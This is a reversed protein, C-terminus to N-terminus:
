WGKPLFMDMLTMGAEQKDRKVRPVTDTWAPAPSYTKGANAVIAVSESEIIMTERRTPRQDNVLVRKGPIRLNRNMRLMRAYYGSIEPEGHTRHDRYHVINCVRLVINPDYFIYIRENISHM